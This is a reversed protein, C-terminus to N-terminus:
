TKTKGQSEKLATVEVEIKMLDETALTSKLNCFLVSVGVHM